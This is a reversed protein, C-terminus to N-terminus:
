KSPKRRGKFQPIRKLLTFFSNIFMIARWSIPLNCAELLPPTRKRTAQDVIWWLIKNQILKKKKKDFLNKYNAKLVIFKKL